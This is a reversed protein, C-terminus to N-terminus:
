TWKSKVKKWIRGFIFGFGFWLILMIAQGIFGSILRPIDLEFHIIM